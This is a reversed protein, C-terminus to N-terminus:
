DANGEGYGLRRAEEFAALAAESRNLEGLAVGKNYWAEADEPRLKTAEEFAALAAESRNLEGLAVGKKYWAKAYRPRLETAEEFAALAAESRNLESLAVGKNYWAEAFEPRLKTAEEFAALAAEPRNLEGLAVGKNYWAEADEPRLETAREYVVLAVDPRNLELKGLTVGKNNWAEAHESGTVITVELTKFAGDYDGAYYSASAKGLLADILEQKESQEELPGQSPEAQIPKGGTWTVLRNLGSAWDEFLDVQQWISVRHDGRGCDELRVPIITFSRSDQERAIEYAWQLEEDQFGPEKGTKRLAAESLCILFFRSRTIARQIQLKWAGSESKEKDFWVNVDRQTLETYLRRAQALDDSAYSLFVQPREM